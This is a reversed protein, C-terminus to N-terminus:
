KSLKNKIILIIDFLAVCAIIIAIVLNFVIFGFNPKHEDKYTNNSNLAHIGISGTAISFVCAILALIAIVIEPIEM